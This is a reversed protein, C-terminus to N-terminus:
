GAGCHVLKCIILLKARWPHSNTDIFYERIDLVSCMINRVNHEKGLSRDIERTQREFFLVGDDGVVTSEAVATLMM